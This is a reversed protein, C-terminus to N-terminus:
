QVFFANIRLNNNENTEAVEQDADVLFLIYYTNHYVSGAPVSSLFNVTQSQGGPLGTVRQTALLTASSPVLYNPSPYVRSWYMKVNFSGAASTGSNKVTVHAPLSIGTDGGTPMGSVGTVALNIDFTQRNASCTGSNTGGYVGACTWTWPGSGSVASATGSTCLGTTPATAFTCGSSLGCVGNVKLNASCSANNGDNLGYCTWSWPGSGAVISPDGALCLSEPAQTLGTSYTVCAGNVPATLTIDYKSVHLGEASDTNFVYLIRSAIDYSISIDNNVLDHNHIKFPNAAVVPTSTGLVGAVRFDELDTLLNGEEDRVELYASYLPTEGDCGSESDCVIFARVLVGNGFVSGEQAEAMAALGLSAIMLIGVLLVLKKM